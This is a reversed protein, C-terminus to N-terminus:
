SIDFIYIDNRCDSKKIKNNFFTEGFLIILYDKYIHMTHNHRPSPSKGKFDSIINWRFNELNLTILENYVTQGIGGFM